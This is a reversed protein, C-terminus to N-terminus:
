VPRVNQASTEPPQAARRAARRRETRERFARRLLRADTTEATHDLWGSLAVLLFLARPRWGQTERGHRVRHIGRGYALGRVFQRLGPDLELRDDDLVEAVSRILRQRPDSARTYVMRGEREEALGVEEALKWYAGELPMLLLPVALDYNRSRTYRLGAQLQRRAAQDLPAGAVIGQIESLWVDATLAEEMFREIADDGDFVDINVERGGFYEERELLSVLYLGDLANLEGLVYGWESDRWKAVIAKVREPASRIEQEPRAMWQEIGELARIFADLLDTLSARPPVPASM